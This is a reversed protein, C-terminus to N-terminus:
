RAQRTYKIQTIVGNRFRVTAMLNGEGRDYVWEEVPQCVPVAKQEHFYPRRGIITWHGTIVGPECFTDQLMPPGCKQLLSIRSEGETAIVGNCKISEARATSAMALACAAFATVFAHTM